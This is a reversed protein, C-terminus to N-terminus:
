SPVYWNSVKEESFLLLSDGWFAGQFSERVASVIGGVKSSIIDAAEARSYLNVTPISLGVEEGVMQSLADTAAGMGINLLESLINQHTESLQHM